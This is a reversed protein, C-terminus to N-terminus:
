GCWPTTPSSATRTSRATTGATAGPARPRWTPATTLAPTCATPWAACRGRCGRTPPSSTPSPRTVATSPSGSPGCSGGVRRRTSRLRSTPTGVAPPVLDGCSGSRSPMSTSRSGNPTSRTSRPSATPRPTTTLTPTPSTAPVPPRASDPQRPRPAPRPLVRRAVRALAARVSEIQQDALPRSLDIGSIEAGITASLPRVGVGDAIGNAEQTSLHTTPHDDLITM